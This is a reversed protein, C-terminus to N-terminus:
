KVGWYLERHLAMFEGFPMQKFGEAQARVAHEGYMVYLPDGILEFLGSAVSPPNVQTRIVHFYDAM